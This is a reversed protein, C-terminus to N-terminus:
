PCHIHIRSSSRNELVAHIDRVLSANDVEMYLEPFTELNGLGGVSSGTEVGVTATRWIISASLWRSSVRASSGPTRTPWDGCIKGAKTPRM